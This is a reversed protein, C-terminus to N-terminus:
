LNNLKGRVLERTSEMAVKVLQLDRGGATALHPKGGGGGGMLAGIEKALSGAKLGRENLDRTVVVVASPKKEGTYFLIGIGSKIKSLLQDGLQKLNDLDAADAM